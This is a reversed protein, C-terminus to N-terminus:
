TAFGWGPYGMVRKVKQAPGVYEELLHIFIDKKVVELRHKRGCGQQYAAYVASKTLHNGESPVIKERVWEEVLMPKWTERIFRTNQDVTAPISPPIGQLQVARECLYAFIETAHNRGWSIMASTVNKVNLYVMRSLLLRDQICFTSMKIMWFLTAHQEYTVTEGDRLPFSIRRSGDTLDHMIQTNGQATSDLACIRARVIPELTWRHPYPYSISHQGYHSVKVCHIYSLASYIIDMLHVSHEGQLVYFRDIPRGIMGHAIADMLFQGETISSVWNDIAARQESDIPRYSPFGWRGRIYDMPLPLRHIGTDFEIVRRVKSEDIYVMKGEVNWHISPRKCVALRFPALLPARLAHNAVLARAERQEGEPLDLIIENLTSAILARLDKTLIEDWM